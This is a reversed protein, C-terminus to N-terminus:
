PKIEKPTNTNAQAETQQKLWDRADIEDTGFEIVKRTGVYGNWNGWINLHIKVKPKQAKM